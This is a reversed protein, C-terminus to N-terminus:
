GARNISVVEAMGKKNQAALRAEEERAARRVHRLGVGDIGLWTGKQKLVKTAEERRKTITKVGLEIEADADVPKAKPAGDRKYYLSGLSKRDAVLLWKFFQRIPNM